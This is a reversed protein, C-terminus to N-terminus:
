YNGLLLIHNVLLFDDVVDFKGFIIDEKKLNEVIINIFLYIFHFVNCLTFTYLNHFDCLFDNVIIIYFWFSMLPQFTYSKYTQKTRHEHNNMKFLIM